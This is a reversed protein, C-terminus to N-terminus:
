SAYAVLKNCALSRSSIRLLGIPAHRM